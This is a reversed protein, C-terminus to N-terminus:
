SLEPQMMKLAVERVRRGKVDLQEARYVVGMAGEGLMALRRYKRSILENSLRESM